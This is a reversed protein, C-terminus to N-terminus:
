GDKYEIPAESFTNRGDFKQVTLDNKSGYKNNSEPVM